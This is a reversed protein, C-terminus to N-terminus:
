KGSPRDPPDKKEEREEREEIGCSFTLSAAARNGKTRGDPSGGNTEKEEFGLIM